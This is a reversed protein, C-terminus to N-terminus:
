RAAVAATWAHMDFREGVRAQADRFIVDKFAAHVYLPYLRAWPWRDLREVVTEWGSVWGSQSAAVAAADLEDEILASENTAVRFWWSASSSPWGYVAISGGEAGVELIREGPLPQIQATVQQPRGDKARRASHLSACVLQIGREGLATILRRLVPWAKPPVRRNTRAVPSGIRTQWYEDPAAIIVPVDDLTPPFAREGREAVEPGLQAALALRWDERLRHPWAKRLAIAYAAGEVIGRLPTDGGRADKVEIVVPTLAKPRVGLLDVEGWGRDKNSNRLMTQYTVIVECVGPLLPRTPTDRETTHYEAWLVREWATEGAREFIRVPQALQYPRTTRVPATADTLRIYDDLHDLLQQAHEATYALRFREGLRQLEALPL